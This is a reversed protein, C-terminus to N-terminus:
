LRRSIQAALEETPAASDLLYLPIGLQISYTVAVSAQLHTHLDSEFSSVLPRGQSEATIRERVVTAEAYLMFIITPRVALLTEVAFPTVRFGFQEKTVAHSDIIIHTKARNDQVFRILQRDVANVDEPRIRGASERRLDDQSLPETAGANLHEALVSSHTFSLLPTVCAELHSVLTSKGTAPPGTLYIVQFPTGTDM